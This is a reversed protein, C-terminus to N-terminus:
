QFHHAGNIAPFAEGSGGGDTDYAMAVAGGGVTRMAVGGGDVVVLWAGPLGQPPCVPVAGVRRGHCVGGGVARTAEDGRGDHWGWRDPSGREDDPTLANM